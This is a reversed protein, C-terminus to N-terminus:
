SFCFLFRSSAGCRLLRRGEEEKFKLNKGGYIDNFHEAFREFINEMKLAGNEIFQDRDTSGQIYIESKIEEENTFLNYLRTEMIRNFIRVKGNVDKIYNFMAALNFVKIDLNFSYDNGYYLIDKM